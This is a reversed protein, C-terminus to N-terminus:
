KKLIVVFLVVCLLLIIINFKMELNRIKEKFFSIEEKLLYLVELKNSNLKSFDKGFLKRDDFLYFQVILDDTIKNKLDNLLDIYLNADKADKNQQLLIYYFKNDKFEDNKKIAKIYGNIVNYNYTICELCTYEMSTDKIEFM